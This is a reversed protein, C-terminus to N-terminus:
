DEIVGPPDYAVLVYIMGGDETPTTSANILHFEGSPLFQAVKDVVDSM